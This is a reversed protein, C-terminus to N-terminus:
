WINRENCFQRYLQLTHKNTRVHNIVDQGYWCYVLLKYMVLLFLVLFKLYNSINVGQLVSLCVPNNPVTSVVAVHM